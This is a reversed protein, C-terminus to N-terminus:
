LVVLAIAMSLVVCLVKWKKLYQFLILNLSIVGASIVILNIDVAENIGNSFVIFDKGLKFAVSSLIAIVSAIAYLTLNTFPKFTKLKAYYKMAWTITILAPVLIVLNIWVAHFWGFHIWTFYTYPKSSFPGPFGNALGIIEWFDIESVLGTGVFMDELFPIFVQGGGFVLVSMGLVGLFVSLM